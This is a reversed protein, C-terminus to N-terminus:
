PGQQLNGETYVVSFGRAIQTDRIRLLAAEAESRNDFHNRKSRGRAGQQGWERILNWGDILDQQILLQYFRPPQETQQTQMYIRM